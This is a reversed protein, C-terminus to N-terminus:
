SKKNSESDKESKSQQQPPDGSARISMITSLLDFWFPAGLSVAIATLLWGIFHHAITHRWKSLWQPFEEGQWTWGPWQRFDSNAGSVAKEAATQTAGKNKNVPPGPTWGIPLNLANYQTKLLLRLTEAPDPTNPAPTTAPQQGGAVPTPSAQSSGGSNIVISPHENIQQAAAVTAKLLGSNDQSLVRLILVSDLNLAFIFGVGL